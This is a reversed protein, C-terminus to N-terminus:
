KNLSMIRRAWNVSLDIKDVITTRTRVIKLQINSIYLYQGTFYYCYIHTDCQIMALYSHASKLWVGEDSAAWNLITEFKRHVYVLWAVMKKKKTTTQKTKWNIFNNEMTCKGIYPYFFYFSYKQKKLNNNRHTSYVSCGHLHPVRDITVNVNENWGFWIASKCPNRVLYALNNRLLSISQIKKFKGHIRLGQLSVKQMHLETRSHPHVILDIPFVIPGSFFDCRANM